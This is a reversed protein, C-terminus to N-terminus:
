PILEKGSDDLVYEDMDSVYYFRGEQIAKAFLCMTFMLTFTTRNGFPSFLWAWITAPIFFAFHGFYEPIVDMRNKLTSVLLWGVYLMCIFGPLGFWCWFGMIWSHAPLYRPKITSFWDYYKLYMESAVDEVQKRLYDGTDLAWPGWGVIPRDTAADLAAFFEGRGGKILAIVGKGRATQSVYKQYAKEGLLNHEACTKYFFAFAPALLLVCLSFTWFHRKMFRMNYRNKGGVVLIILSVATVALGSRSGASFFGYLM